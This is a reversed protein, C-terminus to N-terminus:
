ASVGQRQELKLIASKLEVEDKVGLKQMIRRKHTSVTKQSRFLQASIEVGSYGKVIREVIKNEAQTFSVPETVEDDRRFRMIMPSHWTMHKLNCDIIDHIQFHYEDVCLMSCSYYLGLQSILGKQAGSVLLLIRYGPLNNLKRMVPLLASVSDFSTCDIINLHADSPSIDSFPLLTYHWQPNGKAIRDLCIRLGSIYLENHSFYRMTYYFM